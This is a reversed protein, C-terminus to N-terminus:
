PNIKWDTIAPPGYYHPTQLTLPSKMAYVYCKLCKSMESICYAKLISTNMFIKILNCALQTIEM